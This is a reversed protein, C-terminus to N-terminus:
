PHGANVTSDHCGYESMRIGNTSAASCRSSKERSRCLIRLKGGGHFITPQIAAFTMGTNLAGTNKWTKGFDNTSEMHVRWGKHETSSGCLITGDALQIPKNKIPGLIGDPLRSPKGWTKGGDKSSILMGWWQRPNPGVKYFLLLPPFNRM